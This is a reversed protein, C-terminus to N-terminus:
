CLNKIRVQAIIEQASRTISRKPLLQEVHSASLRKKDVAELLARERGAPDNGLSPTWHPPERRIRADLVAKAYTDRFASRAGGADGVNLLPLVTGWAMAMEDTWVVSALESRPMMAWAEDADPRGDDIRTLIDSMKLPGQLEMRCRALAALVKEEDFDGLDSALMDAAAASLTQGCVEATLSIAQVLVARKAERRAIPGVSSQNSWQPYHIKMKKMVNLCHSQPILSSADSARMEKGRNITSLKNRGTLRKQAFFSVFSFHAM